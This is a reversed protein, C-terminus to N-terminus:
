LLLIEKAVPNIIANSSDKVQPTCIASGEAAIFAQGAMLNQSSDYKAFPGNIDFPTDITYKTSKNRTLIISQDAIYWPANIRAMKVGNRDAFYTDDPYLESGKPNNLTYWITAQTLLTAANLSMVGLDPMVFRSSSGMQAAVTDILSVLQNYYEQITTGTPLSVLNPSALFYTFNTSYSYSCTVSTTIVGGSGALGATTTFVLVGNSWDVAFTATTGPFSYVNGDAPNFVGLVQSSPVTVTVPNSVGDSDAGASTLTRTTRPRVIPSAGDINKSYYITTGGVTGPTGALLRIAAVVAAGGNANGTGYTKSRDTAAVAAVATKAPNLNVTVAGSAPLVSNNPLRSNGTTYAELSVATAGYERAIDPIENMIATDIARSKRAAMHFLERAIVPYDLPGNGLSRIAEISASTAFYRWQPFFTDWTVNVTGEDIGGTAPFLNSFDVNGTQFGWNAANQYTEYPVKFVRGVGANSEWGPLGNGPTAGPGLAQCFQLGRLDQWAEILLYQFVSPQNLLNSTTGAFSDTGAIMKFSDLFGQDTNVSDAFMRGAGANRKAWWEMCEDLVPEMQALNRKRLNATADSTVNMGAFYPNYQQSKIYEDSAAVLKMAIAQGPRTERTVEARSPNNPDNVTNGKAGNRSLGALKADAAAKSVIRIADEVLEPVEEDSDAQKMVTSKVEDKMEDSMKHFAHGEDEVAKGFAVEKKEEMKEDMKDESDGAKVLAKMEDGPAKTPTQVGHQLLREEGTGQRVDQGWGSAPDGGIENALEVYPSTEGGHFGAITKGDGSTKMRKAEAHAAKYTRVADKVDLGELYGEKIDAAAKSDAAVLDSHKLGSKIGTAFQRVSALMTQTNMKTNDKRASDLRLEDEAKASPDNDDREADNHLDPNVTNRTEGQFPTGLGDPGEPETSSQLQGAVVQPGTYQTSDAVAGATPFAPDEVDDLGEIRLYSAVFAKRKSDWAGRM